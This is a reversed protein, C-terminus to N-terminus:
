LLVETCWLACQLPATHRHAPLCSLCHFQQFPITSKPTIFISHTGTITAHGQSYLLLKQIKCNFINKCQHAQLIAWSTFTGAALSIAQSQDWSRWPPLLSGFGVLQGRVEVHTSPHVCLCVYYFNFVQFLFHFKICAHSNIGLKLCFSTM